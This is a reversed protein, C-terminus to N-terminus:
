RGKAAPALPAVSPTIPPASGAGNLNNRECEAVSRDYAFQNSLGHTPVGVNSNASSPSNTTPNSAYIDARDRVEYMENVRQRCAQQEALDPGRAVGPAGSPGVTDNSRALPGSTCASVALALSLLIARSAGARGRPHFIVRSM